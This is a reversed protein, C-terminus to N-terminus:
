RVTTHQSITSYRHQATINSQSAWARSIVTSWMCLTVSATRSSSQRQQRQECRGAFLRCECCACCGAAPCWAAQLAQPRLQLHGGTWSWACSRAQHHEFTHVRGTPAVARALATTLSGSGTGSELVVDGPTLELFCVVMSIDAVYRCTVHRIDVCPNSTHPPSHHGM